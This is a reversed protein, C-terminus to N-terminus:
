QKMIKQTYVENSSNKLMLIYSGPKLHDLQNIEGETKGTIVTKGSLDLIKYEMTEVMNEIQLQHTFPNPSLEIATAELENLGLDVPTGYSEVFEVSCDYYVNFVWYRRYVCGVWCDMWGHSYTLEVHTPYISDVISIGYNLTGYEWADIVEQVTDFLNALAIMNTITDTQLTVFDYPSNPSPSYHHMYLGHENIMSDITANGTPIQNMYLSQMWPLSDYVQLTLINLSPDPHTHIDYIDVVSDREPVGTLNYVALLANLFTDIHSMPIDVSDIYTHNQERLKRMTMHSADYLYRNYISDPAMCNSNRIQAHGHFVSLSFILASLIPLISKMAHNLTKM